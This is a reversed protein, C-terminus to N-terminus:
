KRQWMPQVPLSRVPKLNGQISMDGLVLLAPLPAAKRLISYAAIFFATGIEADVRNGLLDIVEVYFDCTDVERPVGFSTKNALLFSFARQISEKMAGSVGGALKLKSTGSSLTVEM